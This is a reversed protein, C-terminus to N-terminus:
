FGKCSRGLSQKARPTAIAQAIRAEAKLLEDISRYTVKRDAYEVTLEGKAIASQVRELDTSTFAM